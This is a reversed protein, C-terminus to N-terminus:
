SNALSSMHRRSFDIDMEKSFAERAKSDFEERDIEAYINGSPDLIFVFKESVRFYYDDEVMPVHNPIWTRALLRLNEIIQKFRERAILDQDLDYIKEYMYDIIPALHGAKSKGLTRSIVMEIATIVTLAEALNIKKYKELRSFLDSLNKPVNRIMDLIAPNAIVKELVPIPENIAGEASHPTVKKSEDIM